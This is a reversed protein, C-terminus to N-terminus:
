GLEELSKTSTSQGEFNFDQRTLLSEKAKSVHEEWM